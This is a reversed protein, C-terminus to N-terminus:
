FMLPMSFNDQCAMVVYIYVELLNLYRVSLLSIDLNETAIAFHHSRAPHITIGLIMTISVNSQFVLLSVQMRDGTRNSTFNKKRDEIKHRLDEQTM